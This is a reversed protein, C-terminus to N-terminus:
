FCFTGEDLFDEELEEELLELRKGEEEQISPLSQKKKKLVMELKQGLAVGWSHFLKGAEHMAVLNRRPTSLSIAKPANGKRQALNPLSGRLWTPWEGKNCRHVLHACELLLAARAVVPAEQPSLVLLRQETLCYRVNGM